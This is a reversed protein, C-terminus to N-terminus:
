KTEVLSEETLEQFSKITAIAEQEDLKQLAVGAHVIVYDGIKLDNLFSINIKKIIGEFSVEATDLLHNNTYILKEIKGPLALCM